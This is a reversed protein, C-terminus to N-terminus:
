DSRRYPNRELTDDSAPRATADPPEAAAPRSRSSSRSSHGRSKKHERERSRDPSREGDSRDPDSGSQAVSAAAMEIEPEPAAAHSPAPPPEVPRPAPALAPPPPAPTVAPENARSLPIAVGAITLTLGAACGIVVWRRRRSPPAPPPVIVMPYGGSPLGGLSGGSLGDPTGVVPVMPMRTVVPMTTDRPDHMLHRIADRRAELDPGFSHIVWEAVEGSSGVAGHDHAATRLADAMELATQYREDPDRALARLCIEDLWAPPGLGVTSPAPITGRLVNDFVVGHNAGAFLSGGTLANHLVVGVSFVDSRRDVAEGLLQEPAMHSLKGKHVGPVTQTMRAEAKAVGFDSLRTVGDAGVLVNEPSIDRHVLNLALGYEDSLTHVAHLGELLQGVIAVILPPPRRTPNRRWLQRLSCGDVYEMVVYHAGDQAGFDLVGVVYPHHIRAALQAEDYLMTVFDPDDSLHDHLVKVAFLRQFGFDGSVRALYVTGMGGSAIQAVLEYRGLTSGALRYSREAM